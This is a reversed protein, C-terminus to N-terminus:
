PENELPQAQQDEPCAAISEQVNRGKIPHTWSDDIDALPKLVFLREHMRPHPLILDDQGQMVEDHYAIIDLDLVRPANKISRVRGFDQEINLLTRLLDHPPLDTDVSVVSNHYWDQDPDFPVPATLWIRSKKLIKINHNEIVEYAARLTQAPTGHESPLNAGLAIIIM